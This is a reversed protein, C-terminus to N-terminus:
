VEKFRTTEPDWEIEIRENNGFMRDELIVLTRRNREEQPLEPDKNGELGIMLHASRMMARSGAFQVSQVSGGLEHPCNGLGRFHGMNYQKERAEKSMNGDPAKLHCFIHIVINLDKALAAMDQAIEALKTNADAASMGNTLNTIPDVFVAKVGDENVASIIDQKLTDWGLHQYLDIMVLKDALYEGAVDFAEEDFPVDPDHFAQGSVKNAIMKYTLENTEEPKALLVPVDDEMIYHEALANLLESKGMKVGAGWYITEGLRCRRLLINLKSFPYSLEGPPTAKRAREHVDRGRVLRTNIPQKANFSMARYAAKAVGQVLCDNADKRPLNVSMGQPYIKMAETVAKHGPEDDDFCFIVQKFRTLEKTLGALVKVSNVGNPLSIVAPKYEEKKEYHNYIKEVSPADLPGETIILKHAGSELARQWGFPMGGKVNGIAYMISKGEKPITKVYYGEVKGKGQEVPFYYATPTVGDEESVSMRIDWPTFDKESLMREKVSAIPYTGVEAVMLAIDEESPTPKPEVKRGDGYPDPVYTGCSFCYGTANGDENAYVQLADSSGCAPHGIKELCSM